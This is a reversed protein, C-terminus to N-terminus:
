ALSCEQTSRRRGFPRRKGSGRASAGPGQFEIKSPLRQGANRPRRILLLCRKPAHKTSTKLAELHGRTNHLARTSSGKQPSITFSPTAAADQNASSVDYQDQEINKGLKSAIPSTQPPAHDIPFPTLNTSHCLNARQQWVM